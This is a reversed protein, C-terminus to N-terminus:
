QPTISDVAEKNHKARKLLELFMKKTEKPSRKELDTIVLIHKQSAQSLNLLMSDINMGAQKASKLESIADEFYNEGKSLTSESLTFKKREFLAIGAALRKNSTLFNFEAKKLPDSTLFVVIRDRIIKLFYVPSDPLLGPYPLTYDSASSKQPFVLLILFALFIIAAKKMSVSQLLM